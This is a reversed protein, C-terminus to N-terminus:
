LGHLHFDIYLDLNVASPDDYMPLYSYRLIEEIGDGFSLLHKTALCSKTNFYVLLAVTFIKQQAEPQFQLVEHHIRSALWSFRQIFTSYNRM